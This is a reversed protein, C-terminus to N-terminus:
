PAGGAVRLVSPAYGYRECAAANATNAAVTGESYGERYAAALVPDSHNAASPNMARRMAGDRWGLRWTHFRNAALIESEDRSM